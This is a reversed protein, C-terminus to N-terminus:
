RGRVGANLCKWLRTKLRTQVGWHSDFMEKNKKVGSIMLSSTEEDEECPHYFSYHCVRHLRRFKFWKSSMQLQHWYLSMYAALSPLSLSIKVAERGSDAASIDSSFLANVKNSFQLTWASYCSVQQCLSLSLPPLCPTEQCSNRLCAPSWVCWFGCSVFICLLLVLHSYYASHTHQNASHLGCIQFSLKNILSSCPPPRPRSSFTLSLFVLYVVVTIPNLFVESRGRLKAFVGKGGCVCLWGCVGRELVWKWKLADAQGNSRCRSMKEGRESAEDVRKM